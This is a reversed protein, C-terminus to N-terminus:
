EEVKYKELLSLVDKECYYNVRGLMIALAAVGLIGGTLAFFVAHTFSNVIRVKYLLLNVAFIVLMSGAMKTVMPWLYIKDINERTFGLHRLIAIDGVSNKLMLEFMGILLLLSFVLLLVFMFLSFRIIRGISVDLDGYYEFAHKVDYNNTTLINAVRKVDKVEDVNIYISEVDSYGEDPFMIGVITNFIAESAILEDEKIYGGLVSGDHIKLCTYERLIATDSTYGGGDDKIIPISLVIKEQMADNKTVLMNQNNLTDATFYDDSFSKIFVINGTDTPIGFHIMYESVVKYGVNTQKLIDSIQRIDGVGLRRTENSKPSYSTIEITKVFQNETFNKKATNYQFLSFSGIVTTTITVLAFVTVLIIFVHKKKAAIIKSINYLEM